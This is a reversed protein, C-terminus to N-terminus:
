RLKSILSSNIAPNIKNSENYSKNIIKTQSDKKFNLTSNKSEMFEQNKYGSEGTPVIFSNMGSFNFETSDSKYTYFPQGGREAYYFMNEINATVGTYNTSSLDGNLGIVGGYYSNYPNDKSGINLNKITVNVYKQVIAFM